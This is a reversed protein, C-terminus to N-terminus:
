GREKAFEGSNVWAEDLRRAFRQHFPRKGIITLHNTGNVIEPATANTSYRRWDIVNLSRTLSDEAAFAHIRFASKQLQYNRFIIANDVLVWLMHEESGIDPGDTPLKVRHRVVHSLFQEYVEDDMVAFLKDWDDRMPASVRWQQVRRHTEERVSDALQPSVGVTFEEDMDCVDVMGIMRLDIDDGLQRAAEYALLGGWSWGLFACPQGKAFRRVVEAYRATIDEVRTGFMKTATLSYCIFGTAPQDPGLYDVLRMYEQTSVLLGPFCYLVPREGGRRLYVV